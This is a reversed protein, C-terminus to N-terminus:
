KNQHFQHIQHVTDYNKQFTEFSRVWITLKGVWIGSQSEKPNIEKKKKKKVSANARSASETWQSVRIMNNDWKENVKWWILLSIDWKMPYSIVIRASIPITKKIMQSINWPLIDKFETSRKRSTLKTFINLNSNVYVTSGRVVTVEECCGGGSKRDTFFTGASNLNM